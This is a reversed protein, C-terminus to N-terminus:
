RATIVVNPQSNRALVVVPDGVSVVTGPVYVHNLNQAFFVGTNTEDYANAGRRTRLAKRVEKGVVATTQDTDPIVCRDCGKVVFARMPGIEIDTWFDEDYPELDPGDVVINPRFRNMPVPVEMESNLRRLSPETALLMSNGDAFGVQNSAQEVHYRDKIYRPADERVHLFRFSRSQKYPPLFSTFWENLQESVVQGTVARGHVTAVVLKSDDPEIHLPVRMDDMGPATLTISDQSVTVGVLALESVKRQSVFDDDDDILMFDRDLQLGRATVRAQSLHVGACSKVPYTVLDVVRLATTVVPM